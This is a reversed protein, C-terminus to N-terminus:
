STGKIATSLIVEIKTRMGAIFQSRDGPHDAKDRRGDTMRYGAMSISAFSDKEALADHEWVKPSYIAEFAALPYEESSQAAKISAYLTIKRCLDEEQAKAGKLVGGGPITKNALNLFAPSTLGM